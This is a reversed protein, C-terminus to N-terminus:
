FDSVAATVDQIETTGQNDIRATGVGDIRFRRHTQDEDREGVAYYTFEVIVAAQEAHYKQVKIDQMEIEAANTSAVAGCFADTGEIESRHEYLLEELKGHANKKSLAPLMALLRTADITFAGEPNEAPVPITTGCADCQVVNQQEGNM